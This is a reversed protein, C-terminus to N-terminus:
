YVTLYQGKYFGRRYLNSVQLGPYIAKLNTLRTYLDVDGSDAPVVEFTTPDISAFAFNIHTYVGMPIAEPSMADCARTVSWGEYYGVTRQNASTGTCSPNAIVQDGCFETTTGCFGYQSCCVNLPCTEALAYTSGWNAPDCESKADCNNVCNGPGCYDSLDQTLM